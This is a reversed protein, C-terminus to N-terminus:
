KQVLFIAFVGGNNDVFFEHCIVNLLKAAEKEMKAEISPISYEPNVYVGVKKLILDYHSTNKKTTYGFSILLKTTGELFEVGVSKVLTSPDSVFALFTKKDKATLKGNTFNVEFLKFKSHVQSM